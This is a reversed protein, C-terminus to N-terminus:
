CIASGPELIMWLIQVKSKLQTKLVMIIDVSFLPHGMIVLKSINSLLKKVGQRYASLVWCAMAATCACTFCVALSAFFSSCFATFVKFLEMVLM